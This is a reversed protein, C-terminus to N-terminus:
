ENKNKCEDMDLDMHDYQLVLDMCQLAAPNSCYNALYTDMIVLTKQHNIDMSIATNFHGHLDLIWLLNRVDDIDRERCEKVFANYNHDCPILINPEFMEILFRTEKGFPKEQKIILEKEERNTADIERYQNCRLFVVCKKNACEMQEICRSIEYNAVWAKTYDGREKNNKFENPNHTIYNVRDHAIFQMSKAVYDSLAKGDGLQKMLLSVAKASYNSCPFRQTSLLYHPIGCSLYGCISSCTNYRKVLAKLAQNEFQDIIKIGRIMGKLGCNSVLTNSIETEFIKPNMMQKSPKYHQSTGCMECHTRDITNIYTCGGCSWSQKQSSTMISSLLLFMM